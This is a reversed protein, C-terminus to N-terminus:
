EHGYEGSADLPISAVIRWGGDPYPGARFIGGLEEVRHRMSELGTGESSGVASVGDNTVALTAESGIALCVNCETASAHRVVNTIAEEAIRLLAVEAAAPLRGGTAVTHDFTVRLGGRGARDVAEGVAGVLGVEDLRPPRLGAVLRRVSGLADYVEARLMELSLAVDPRDVTESAVDLGLAIGTLQPGLGDHLDMRLRRREEERAAVVQERSAQLDDALAIPELVLAAHAALDSILRRERRRLADEGRRLGVTLEGLERNRHVISFRASPGEAVGAVVARAPEGYEIQVWPVHLADRMRGVYSQIVGQPTSAGAFEATLGAVAAYPDGTSGYVFRDVRRQLWARAPALAIVSIAAAGFAPVSDSDVGSLTAVGVAAVFVGVVLSTLLGYLLTRRLVLDLGYVQHRLTAATVVALEVLTLGLGVAAGVPTPLLVVAPITVVTVSVGVVLLWSLVRRDDGRANRWRMWLVGIALVASPGFFVPVLTVDVAAVPIGVVALAISLMSLWRLWNRPLLGDPYFAYMAMLVPQEVVEAAAAIGGFMTGGAASDLVAAVWHGAGALLALWGFLVKPRHRALYLGPVTWALGSALNLLVPGSMTVVLTGDRPGEIAPIWGPDVPFAEREAPRTARM